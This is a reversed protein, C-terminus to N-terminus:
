DGWRLHFALRADAAYVMLIQGEGSGYLSYWAGDSNIVSMIDAGFGDIGAGDFQDGDGTLCVGRANLLKKDTIPTPTWSGVAAFGRVGWQPVVRPPVQPATEPLELLVYTCGHGGSHRLKSTLVREFVLDPFLARAFDEGKEPVCGVLMGLLALCATVKAM